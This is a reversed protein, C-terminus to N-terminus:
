ASMRLRVQPSDVNASSRELHCSRKLTNTGGAQRISSMLSARSDNTTTASLPESHSPTTSPLPHTPPPPPPPPPPSPVTHSETQITDCLSDLYQEHDPFPPLPMSLEQEIECSSQFELIFEEPPATPLTKDPPYSYERFSASPPLQTRILSEYIHHDEESEESSDLTQKVSHLQESPYLRTTPQEINSFVPSTPPDLTSSLSPEMLPTPPLTDGPSSVNQELTPTESFSLPLPQISHHEPTNRGPPPSPLPRNHMFPPLKQTSLAETISDDVADSTITSPMQAEQPLPPLPRHSRPDNTNRDVPPSPLPRQQLISSLMNQSQAHPQMNNIEVSDSPTTTTSVTNQQRQSADLAYSLSPIHRTQNSPSVKIETTPVTSKSHDINVFRTASIKQPFYSKTTSNHETAKLQSPRPIINKKQLSPSVNRVTPATSKSDDTNVSHTVATKSPLSPPTVIHHEITKPESPLSTLSKEQLYPSVKKTADSDPVDMDVSRTKDITPPTSYRRNQINNNVHKPCLAIDPKDRIVPKIKAIPKKAPPPKISVHQALSQSIQSRVSADLTSVNKHAESDLSKSTVLQKKCDETNTNSWNTRESFHLQFAEQFSLM